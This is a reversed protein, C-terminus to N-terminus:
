CVRQGLESFGARGGSGRAGNWGRMRVTPSCCPRDRQAQNDLLGDSRGDWDSEVERPVTRGFELIEVSAVM